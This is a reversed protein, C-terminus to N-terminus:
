SAGALTETGQSACRTQSFDVRLLLDEAPCRMELYMADASARRFIQTCNIDQWELALTEDDRLIGTAQLFAGSSEFWYYRYQQTKADWAFLAHAEGITEGADKQQMLCDFTLCTADFLYRLSGTGRISKTMRGHQTVTYDLEWDGAMFSLARMPARTETKM